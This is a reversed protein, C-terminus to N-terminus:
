LTSLYTEDGGGGVIGKYCLDIKIIPSLSLVGSLNFTMWCARVSSGVGCLTRRDERRAHRFFTDVLSATLLIPVVLRATTMAGM